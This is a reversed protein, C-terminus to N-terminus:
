LTFTEITYALESVPDDTYWHRGNGLCACYYTIADEVLTKRFHVHGMVSKTIPYKDYLTMYSRSGLFANYYDYVRHPLPVIFQPHTVVHTMLVVRKDAVKEMDKEIQALMERSVDRDSKGWHVYLRDNWGGVRLKKAEFEEETYKNCAFGYDYWGPNGVVAYTDNVIFPNAVLSEERENFLLNIKNTDTEKNRISWYDHNGPVFLIKSVRHNKMKDLFALSERYDSSIDGALLLVDIENHYLYEALLSDYSQGPALKRENIDIHIDSLVGFKLIFTEGKM